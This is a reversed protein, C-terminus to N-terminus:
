EEINYLTLGEIKRNETVENGGLYFPIHGRRCYAQADSSTFPKGTKKEKNKNLFKVFVRLTMNQKLFM